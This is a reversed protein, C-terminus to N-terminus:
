LLHIIVKRGDRGRVKIIPKLARVTKHIYIGYIVLDQMYFSTVQIREYIAAPRAFRAGGYNLGFFLITMLVNLIFFNTIIM